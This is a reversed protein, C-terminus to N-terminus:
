PRQSIDAMAVKVWDSEYVLHESHVIWRSDRDPDEAPM